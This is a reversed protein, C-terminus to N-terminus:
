KLENLLVDAIRKGAGATVPQGQGTLVTVQTKDAVARLAIRYREAKAAEDRSTFLRSFFGREDAGPSIDVYRVFYVGESRNRDEVTFGTRDLALGVRRWARDLDEDMELTATPQGDLLRARAPAAPAAAALATAAAAQDGGLKVMLRALFEAELQKDAPRAQWRLEDKLQRDTFVETLGRHTIYVDTGTATREVRTHFRDREGTDYLGEILRGISRRLLDQPLKARNEAWETELVGIKADDIALNFGSEIWFSRIQDWVQEPPVPLSLWRLDGDRMLKMGRLSDPAIAPAATPTPAAPAAAAGPTAAQAASVVGTTPQYRGERALQTLDPPVELGQTQRAASKYDIKEGSLLGGSSSCGATAAAALALAAWALPSTLLPERV